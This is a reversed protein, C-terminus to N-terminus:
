IKTVFFNGDFKSSYHLSRDKMIIAYEFKYINLLEKPSVFFLCTALADALLANEAIVWTGLIDRPSSLLYPNLIHHFIGWSRRNGSSACISKNLLPVIGIVKKINEPDELGIRLQKGEIDKQLIDGGADISFSFINQKELLEGIIDILYGKGAAGIDILVKKKIKIKPFKYELAEEWRPPRVLYGNMKLSYKADYGAMSLAEGILPTFLGNTIHYLDFYLDFISKADEPLIFEGGVEFMKTILSDNRFRSYNKDFLEIRQSIKKFIVASEPATIEQNIDIHWKTGIADFVFSKKEM